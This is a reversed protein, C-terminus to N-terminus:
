RAFSIIRAAGDWAIKGFAALDDIYIATFGGINFSRVSKGNIFTVIDTHLVDGAPTGIKATTGDPSYTSTVIKNGESITLSRTAGDWAVNFGFQALDEAVIATNGDINFSRLPKGDVTATIDTHLYTNIKTGVPTAISKMNEVVHYLNDSLKVTAGAVSVAGLYYDSVREFKENILYARDSDDIVLAVGDIFIAADKFFELENGNYDLYGWKGDARKALLYDNACYAILPYVETLAKDKTFGDSDLDPIILQYAETFEDDFSQYFDYTILRDNRIPCFNGDDDLSNSFGVYTGTNAMKGTNINYVWLSSYPPASLFLNGKYIPYEEIMEMNLTFEKQLKGAANIVFVRSGYSNGFEDVFVQENVSVAALGESFPTSYLVDAKSFFPASVSKGTVKCYEVDYLFDDTKSNRRIELVGDSISAFYAGDVSHILNGKSDYLFSSISSYNIPVEDPIDKTLICYGNETVGATECYDYEFPVLVKGSLDIIGYKEGILALSSYGNKAYDCYNYGQQSVNLKPFYAGSAFGSCLCIVTIISMILSLIRKFM